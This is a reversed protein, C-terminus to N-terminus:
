AFKVVTEVTDLLYHTLLPRERCEEFQETLTQNLRRVASASPAVGMLTQTIYLMNLKRGTMREVADQENLDTAEYTGVNEGNRFITIRDAIGKIENWRHSTFVICTGQTRLKRIVGFLWEVEREALASTPEDMFLVQPNRSIVKVFEVIQRQGLSLNAVLELPEIGPIGHERLLKWAFTIATGTM